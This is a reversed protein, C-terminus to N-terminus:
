ENSKEQNFIVSFGNHILDSLENFLEWGKPSNYSVLVAQVASISLNYCGSKESYHYDVEMRIPMWYISTAFEEYTMKPSLLDYLKRSSVFLRRKNHHPCRLRFIAKELATKQNHQKQNM